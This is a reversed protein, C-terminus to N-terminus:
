PRAEVLFDVRTIGPGVSSVQFNFELDKGASLPSAAEWRRVGVLEGADDYASALVWVTQATGTAASLHVKGSVEASRGSWDVSVLTNEVVAPLYRADGPLLRISTLIQLRPVVQESLPPPFYASLPMSQGAPLIDLPAFAVQSAIAQGGPSLLSFQASLDELTEAYLNHVLAFCWQGGQPGAWCRAQEFALPVATPTPEVASAPGSPITLKTGIVLLSPQIGPNAAILGELSVHYRLAIGSLTDGQVVTYQLPTPSPLYAVTLAPLPTDLLTPSATWYPQPEPPGLPQTQAVPGCASLVLLFALCVPIRRM